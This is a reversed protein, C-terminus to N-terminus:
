VPPGYIPELSIANYKPLESKGQTYNTTADDVGGLGTTATANPDDNDGPKKSLYDDIDGAEPIEGAMYGALKNLLGEVKKSTEFNRAVASSMPNKNPQELDGKRKAGRHERAFHKGSTPRDGTVPTVKANKAMMKRFTTESMHQDPTKKYIAAHAVEDYNDNPAEGMMILNFVDNANKKWETPFFPVVNGTHGKRESYPHRKAGKGGDGIMVPGTDWDDEVYAQM